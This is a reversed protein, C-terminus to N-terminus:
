PLDHNVLVVDCDLKDEQGGIVVVNEIVGMQKEIQYVESSVVAITSCKNPIVFLTLVRDLVITEM